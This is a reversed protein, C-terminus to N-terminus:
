SYIASNLPEGDGTGEGSGGGRASPPSRSGRGGGAMTTSISRALSGPLDLSLEQEV